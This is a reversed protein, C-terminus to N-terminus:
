QVFHDRDFCCVFLCVFSIAKQDNNGKGLGVLIKISASGTIFCKLTYIKKFQLMPECLLLAM